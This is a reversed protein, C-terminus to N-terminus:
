KEPERLVEVNIAAVAMKVVKYHNEPDETWLLWQVGDADM